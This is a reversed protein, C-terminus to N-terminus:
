QAGQSRVVRSNKASQRGRQAAKPESAVTKDCVAKKTKDRSSRRRTWMQGCECLHAGASHDEFDVCGHTHGEGTAREAQCHAETRGALLAHLGTIVADWDVVAAGQDRTAAGGNRSAITRSAQSPTTAKAGIATPRAGTVKRIRASM